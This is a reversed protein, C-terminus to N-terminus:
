SIFSYERTQICLDFQHDICRPTKCKAITLVEIKYAMYDYVQLVYYAVTLQVETEPGGGADKKVFM